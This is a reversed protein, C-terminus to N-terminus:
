KLNPTKAFALVGKLALYSCEILEAEVKMWALFCGAVQCQEGHRKSKVRCVSVLCCAFIDQHPVFLMGTHYQSKDSPIGASMRFKKPPPFAHAFGVRAPFGVVFFSSSLDFAFGRAFLAVPEVFPFFLFRVL